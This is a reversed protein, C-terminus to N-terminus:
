GGKEGEIFNDEIDRIKRNIDAMKKSIEIIKEISGRSEEQLSNYNDVLRNYEGKLQKIEKAKDKGASTMIYGEMFLYCLDASFRYSDALLLENELQIRKSARLLRDFKETSYVRKRPLDLREKVVRIRDKVNRLWDKSDGRELSNNYEQVLENGDTMLKDYKSLDKPSEGRSIRRTDEAELLHFEKSLNLFDIFEGTCSDPTLEAGDPTTWASSAFYTESCGFLLPLVLAKILINM